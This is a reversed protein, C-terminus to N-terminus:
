FAALWMCCTITIGIRCHKVQLEQEEDKGALHQRAIELAGLQLDEATLLTHLSRHVSALVEQTDTSAEALTVAQNPQARAHIPARRAYDDEEELM